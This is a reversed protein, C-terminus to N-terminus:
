SADVVIRVIAYILAALMVAGYVLMWVSSYRLGAPRFDPCAGDNVDSCATANTPLGRGGLVLDVEGPDHPQALCVYISGLPPLNDEPKVYGRARHRCDACVTVGRQPRARQGLVTPRTPNPPPPRRSGTETDHDAM